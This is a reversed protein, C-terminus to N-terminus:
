CDLPLHSDLTPVSTFKRELAHEALNHPPPRHTAIGITNNIVIADRTKIADHELSLSPALSPPVVCLTLFVEATATTGVDAGVSAPSYTHAPIGLLEKFIINASLTFITASEGSIVLATHRTLTFPCPTKVELNLYTEPSYSPHAEEYAIGPSTVDVNEKSPASPSPSALTSAPLLGSTPVVTYVHPSLCSMSATLSPLAM